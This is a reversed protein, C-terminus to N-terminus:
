KGTDGVTIEPIVGLISAPMPFGQLICYQGPVTWSADIITRADCTQLDTVIENSASGVNGRILDKMPVTNTFTRGMFLGLAEAVRVTVGTIQKRKGQVTPEGMDIALTQLKCIYGLGITVKSAAVPLTFFGSAPMVFPTIVEGDALGTVTLGSLHEAGTFTTALAGNYQVGSDVCWADVVGNPFIREAVREIYKVTFGNVVREVVTYVADVVNTGADEIVTAVSKFNGSTVSHTWGVFEQEKQFTLTLMQGDDRVAWVVKFPEEAWAWELVKFGYFLHSSLISIDSGTFVNAYFNYSSDRVISGKSQVYLIDYNSVIPPVDSTGNFSQANAVVGAPTVASGQSGGNILWSANTSLIILGSPQSVLAKITNLQGSVLTGTIADDDQIPSSIDFNFYSGPQSMYFTQPAQPQSALVLRQQFFGPVSPNGASAAGLVATAAASGSSFVVAPAVLYGAGHNVINLAGIAWTFNVTVNGLDPPDLNSQTGVPISTSIVSGPNSGGGSGPNQFATISGSGDVTAVTLVVNNAFHVLDGPAFTPDSLVPVATSAQAYAQVLATVGGAAPPGITVSVPATYSGVNTINITEIASGLFPNKPIPPTLSFDPAINTDNLALGTSNGIFGYSVGPPIAGGYSLVSKYVNYSTAGSVATWSIVNTGLTTRLDQYGNLAAPVSASSEQGNIDVSTAVYSYDVAGSTLTSAATISPASVTSGYVIPTITWNAAAVLTLIQAPYSPHCLILTNVNSAYKILALDAAAYPTTIYYSRQVLGGSIYTTYGTTDLPQGNLDAVTITNTTVSAATFYRDNMQTMGVVASVFFQEGLNINHAPATIVGPNAKTIGSIAIGTQLVPAGHFIPRMYHDGFELAYGVDFSAQLPILRVPLASNLAQIVYKTGPRTSAGGRYDVFFNELVAAASHYKALDVRANLTPAWEGTNFSTQIVSTTM